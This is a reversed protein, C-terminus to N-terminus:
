ARQLMSEVEAKIRDYEAQASDFAQKAAKVREMPDRLEWNCPGWRFRGDRQAAELQDPSFWIQQYSTYFWKGERRAQDFLPRMSISIPDM